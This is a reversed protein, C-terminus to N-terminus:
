KSEAERALRTAVRVSETGPQTNMTFAGGTFKAGCKKCYWIGVSLRKITKNECRPCKYPARLKAEIDRVRKRLRSGYRAGFRGSSGAKKTKGM